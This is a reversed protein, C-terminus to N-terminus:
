YVTHGGSCDFRPVTM